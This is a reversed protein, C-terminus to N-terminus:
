KYQGVKKILDNLLGLDNELTIKDNQFNKERNQRDAKAKEINHQIVEIQQDLIMKYEDLIRKTSDQLGQHIQPFLQNCIQPVVNNEFNRKAKDLDTEGFLKGLLSIMDPLFIIVLEMWPAVFNTAVSLLGTVAHYKQVLAKKSNDEYTLRSEFSGLEILDKLNNAMNCVIDSVDAQEAEDQLGSFNLSNTVNDIQRISIDRISSLMIPRVTELIIAEAATQNGGLLAYAANDSRQILGTRIQSIIKNVENEVNQLEEQKKMEFIQTMEKKIRNYKQLACDLDYTDLFLKRKVIQLSKEANFLETYICKQMARDFVVQMHFSSVISVIKDRIDIDFASVVYVPYVFGFSSLVDKATEAITQATETTIKDCKNILVAIQDSYQSIEMIFNLTTEDIGGKEQDIVVLYASGSDIYGSLAKAHAEIGSDIGPMDVVTFDSLMKLGEARLHYSLHSYEKPTYTGDAFLPEIEGSNRFAFASDSEAYNLETALATQPVQAVKLFDRRELLGNLLSSKGANFQGVVMLKIEFRDRIYRIKELSEKLGCNKQRLNIEEIKEIIQDYKNRNTM